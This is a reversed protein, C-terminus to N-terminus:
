TCFINLVIKKKKKMLFDIVNSKTIRYERGVKVSEIRNERLLKYGTKTSIGGLADCMQEIKLVDPYEKLMKIYENRKKKEDSM